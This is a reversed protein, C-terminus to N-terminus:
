KDYDKLPDLSLNKKLEEYVVKQLDKHAHLTELLQDVNAKLQSTHDYSVNDSIELKFFQAVKLIVHLRKFEMSTSPFANAENRIIKTLTSEKEVTNKLAILMQTLATKSVGTEGQMICPVGCEIRENMKLLKITFDLTLVFQSRDILDVTGLDFDFKLGTSSNEQRMNSLPIDLGHGLYSDLVRRDPRCLDDTTPVQMQLTSLLSKRRVWETDADDPNSCLISWNYDEEMKDDIVKRTKHFVLQEHRNISWYIRHGHLIVKEVEVLIISM